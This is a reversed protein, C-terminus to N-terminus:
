ETSVNCVRSPLLIKHVFISSKKNMREGRRAERGKGTRKRQKGRDESTGYEGERDRDGEGRDEGEKCVEKKNRKAKRGWTRLGVGGM